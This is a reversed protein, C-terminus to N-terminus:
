VSREGVLNEKLAKNVAKARDTTCLKQLINHVHTKATSREIILRESIEINNLGEVLLALVDLERETLGYVNKALNKGDDPNTTKQISGLVLKAISPDLWAVGDNVACIASITQEQSAGKMIYGDAGAQFASFIDDESDRSTFILIRSKIGENKLRKTAEIGDVYPLGIDMLIVDPNLRKAMDIGTLGNEAEGILEVKESQSLFVKLGMRVMAHDEVLLVKIKDDM